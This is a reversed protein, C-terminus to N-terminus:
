LKSLKLAEEVKADLEEESGFGVEEGAVNGQLDVMVLKPIGPAQFRQGYIGQTDHAIYYNLGKDKQFAKVKELDGPDDVSIALITVKDKYKAYLNNLAPAERNCPGCWTAFISIVVPKDGYLEESTLHKGDLTTVDFAPANGHVVVHAKKAAPGGEQGKNRATYAYGALLIILLVVVGRATGSM